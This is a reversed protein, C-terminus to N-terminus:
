FLAASIEPWKEILYILLLHGPYFAYFVWKNLKLGSRMPIYIFPLAMIAFMQIYFSVEFLTYGSGDLGWYIMYAAVLPLSIYWRNIFLYLLLMLFVGRIGYDLASNMLYTLLLILATIWLRRERVSWIAVIGVALSLLISPDKWSYVYFNFIAGFPDTKFPIATMLPNTHHLALVYIPQAILALLVIRQLYRGMNRTYVCGVAIAYAYIPFAIRGIIRMVTYQTFIAAGLHDVLMTLMAVVKILNTDQNLGVETHRFPWNRDLWSEKQKAPVENM